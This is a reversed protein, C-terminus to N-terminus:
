RMEIIEVRRNQARGADTGNDAIPNSEGYGRTAIRQEAIGQSVLYVKVASARRESLTQNYADAGKSDTHGQVEVRADAHERLYSVARQLSDRGAPKLTAKDFDFLVGRLTLLPRPPPPAPAPAPPPPPTPPPPAPTPPPPAPTPPPPVPTPPPPPPAPRPAPAPAPAPAPPPPPPPASRACFNISRKGGFLHSLGFRLGLTRTREGTPTQDSPDKFDMVADGRWWWSEKWRYRFGVLANGGSDYQNFTTDTKYSSGTFGGGVLLDWQEGAPHNYILDVRNNWSTLNGVTTSRTPTFEGSYELEIRPCVFAGVRGGVGVGNDLKTFSDYKSFQGFVGAELAANRQASLPAVALLAFVSVSLVPRM